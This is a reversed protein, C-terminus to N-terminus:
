PEALRLSHRTLVCDRVQDYNWAAPSSAAGSLSYIDTSSANRSNNSKEAVVAGGCGGSDEKTAVVSGETTAEAAAAADAIVRLARAAKCMTCRATKVWNDYTCYDCRWKASHTLPPPPPSSEDSSSM